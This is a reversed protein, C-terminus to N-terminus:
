PAPHAKSSGTGRLQRESRPEGDEAGAEEKGPVSTEGQRGLGRRGGPRPMQMGKGALTCSSCTPGGRLLRHRSRGATRVWGLSARQRTNKEMARQVIQGVTDKRKEKNRNQKTRERYEAASNRPGLISGSTHEASFLYKSPLQVHPHHARVGLAKYTFVM